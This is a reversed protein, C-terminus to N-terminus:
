QPPNSDISESDEDTDSEDDDDDRAGIPTTNRILIVSIAGITIIVILTSLLMWWPHAVQELKM